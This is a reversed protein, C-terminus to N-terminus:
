VPWSHTSVQDGLIVLSCVKQKFRDGIRTHYLLLRKPFETDKQSQIEIHLLVLEPEGSQRCVRM